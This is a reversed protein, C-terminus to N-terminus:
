LLDKYKRYGLEILFLVIFLIFFYINKVLNIKINETVIKSKGKVKDFYDEADTLPILKGNTKEAIDRMLDINAGLTSLELNNEVIKFEKNVSMFEKNDKYLSIKATYLGPDTLNLESSYKGNSYVFEAEADNEVVSLKIVENKLPKFNDDFIKGEFKIKEGSTYTSKETSIKIKESTQDISLQEIINLFFKELESNIANNEFTSFTKWFYRMNILITKGPTNLSQYASHNLKDSDIDIIPYFYKDDPIFGADYEISPLGELNLFEDNYSYLYSSANNKNNSIFGKRYISKLNNLKLNTLSNLKNRDTKETIFILKSPFKQTLSDLQANRKRNPYSYLVILDFNNANKSTLKIDPNHLLYSINNKALIDLFFKLDLSLNGYVVLINKENKSIKQFINMSNNYLNKEDPLKSIIFKTTKLTKENTNLSISIRKLSGNEPAIGTVKKIVKEDEIILLEFNSNMSNGTIGIIIEYNSEINPDIVDEYIIDKIFIDVEEYKHKTHVFNIPIDNPLSANNFNTFNGDTVIFINEYNKKLTTLTTLNNINSFNDEFNLDAINNILSISDGFKYKSFDNYNLINKLLTRVSESETSDNQIVSLSNDFLVLNQIITKKSNEINLIPNFFIMALLFLLVSRSIILFIKRSNNLNSRSYYWKSFYIIIPIMLILFIGPFRLDINM